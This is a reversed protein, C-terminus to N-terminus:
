MPSDLFPCALRCRAYRFANPEIASRDEFTQSVGINATFKGRRLILWWPLM